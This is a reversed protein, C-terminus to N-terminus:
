SKGSAASTAAIPPLVIRLMAAACWISVTRGRVPKSSRRAPIRKRVSLGAGSLLNSTLATIQGAVAASSSIGATPGAACASAVSGTSASSITYSPPIERAASASVPIGESSPGAPVVSRISAGIAAAASGAHSRSASASATAPATSPAPLRCSQPLGIVPPM